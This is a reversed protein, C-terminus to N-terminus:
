INYNKGFIKEIKGIRSTRVSKIYNSVTCSTVIYNGYGSRRKAIENSAELIKSALNKNSQTYDMEMM